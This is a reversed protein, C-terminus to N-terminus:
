WRHFAPHGEKVAVFVGRATAREVGGAGLSAEVVARDDQVEVARAALEIVESTPIPRRFRVSYEATVMPPPAGLGRSRMLAWAGAWLMHCDLITGAIGGNLMGPFAEHHPGARFTAHV